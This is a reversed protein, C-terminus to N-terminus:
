KRRRLVLAAAVAVIVIVAAGIAVYTLTPTSATTAPQPAESPSPSAPTSPELTPNTTQAPAANPQEPQSQTVAPNAVTETVYFSTGAESGYYAASGEFTATVKYMGPVPPTWQLAFDGQIDSTAYGIDQFNGNPDVATLHVSVGTADTPKGQQMYLYEMWEQQDEDAVAPVGNVFGFNDALQKTGASQDTVTGKILVTSGQTIVDSQIYATTASPGKGYCYIRNDFLNLDVLHGDAITPNSGWHTIKWLEDGNSANVCRMYSSRWLPQNPSHENSYIYLKGDAICGIGIPVNEYPAEFGLNGSAYDWLVEGTMLDYAIIHGTYGAVNGLGAAVGGGLLMGQYIIEDMGYFAGDPEPESPGWLPQMTDLSYCWRQGTMTEEFTFVGDEPDVSALSVAHTSGKSSPVVTQPPTFTKNWLLVGEQGPELSIAWLNGETIGLDNNSGGTGGIVYQDERVALISGGVNPISANLSFGKSGDFTNNLYPRWEWYYFSSFPAAPDYTPSDFIPNWWIARSTNWVQLYKAPHSANGFNVINYRLISGDKGYVSTGTAGTTVSAGNRYETQTVNAISCIYSGTFADYMNWETYQQSPGFPGMVTKTAGGNTSWLYPFGGHQNPSEYNYVQGFSLLQGTIVGSPNAGPHGTSMVPGTTNFFYETEGTYLDVCYYGYRPPAQVSYYLKGNLIIAPDWFLEYSQGTYYGKDDTQGGMVGGAWFERAWLIHASEPGESYPNYKRTPGTGPAGAETDGANLWNGAIQQWNRNMGNVPRTWYSTPLPAEDFSPIPEEQVTLIYEDSKCASYTDNVAANNMPVGNATPLGTVVNGPFNLVVTYTGVQDPVYKAYGGGLADSTFPGLTDKSGDPKTIDLTFGQWRDGYAGLATPPISDLWYVFLTEQNVGLPNPTAYIFAWTPVEWPPDHAAAPPLAVLSFGVTVVLLLTITTLLTQTKSKVQKYNISKIM